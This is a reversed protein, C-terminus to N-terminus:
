EQPQPSVAMLNLTKVNAKLKGFGTRLKGFPPSPPASFDLSNSTLGNM